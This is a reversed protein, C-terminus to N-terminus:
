KGKEQIAKELGDPFQQKIFVKLDQNEHKLLKPNAKLVKEPSEMLLFELEGPFLFRKGAFAGETELFDNYINRLGFHSWLALSLIITLGALVPRSFPRKFATFVLVFLVPLFGTALIDALTLFSISLIGFPVVPEVIIEKLVPDQMIEPIKNQIIRGDIFFAIFMLFLYISFLIGLRKFLSKVAIGKGTVIRFILFVLIIIYLGYVSFQINQRKIFRKAIGMRYGIPTSRALKPAKELVKLYWRRMKRFDRLSYYVDGIRHMVEVGLTTQDYKKLSNQLRQIYGEKEDQNKSYYSVKLMQEIPFDHELYRKVYYLSDTAYECGLKTFHEYLSGATEPDKLTHFALSAAKFGSRCGAEKSASMVQICLLLQYTFLEEQKKGDAAKQVLSNLSDQTIQGSVITPHEIYFSVLKKYMRTRCFQEPNKLASVFLTDIAAQFENPISKKAEPQHFQANLPFCILIVLIVLSKM